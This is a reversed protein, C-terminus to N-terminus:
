HERFSLNSIYINENHHISVVQLDQLLDGGIAEINTGNKLILPLGRNMATLARERVKSVTNVLMPYILKAWKVTESEMGDPCQDLLRFIFLLKCLRKKIEIIRNLIKSSETKKFFRQFINGPFLTSM